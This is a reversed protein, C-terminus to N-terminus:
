SGDHLTYGMEQGDQTDGWSSDMCVSGHKLSPGSLFLLTAVVWSPPQVSSARATLSALRVTIAFTIMDSM